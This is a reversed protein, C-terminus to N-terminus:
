HWPQIESTIVLGSDIARHMLISIYSDQLAESLPYFEVGEKIYKYMGVLCEIIANEDDKEKISTYTLTEKLVNNNKNVYALDNNHIEGCCGQLTVHKSLFDSHYQVGSFNYFATKGPFEITLVNRFKEAIRGDTIKGDRSDTETIHFSYGKGFVKFRENTIGLSRKILSAAHYDHVSSISIFQPEGIKDINDKSLLSKYYPYLFYQEAIQVKCGKEQQLTWLSQLDSETLGAPTESLVPIGLDLYEKTVEFISSKNVAVVVFDPKSKLLEDRSTTVNINYESKFIEAKAENRFLMSTLKFKSDMEKVIRIYFKSRWGSGILAFKIKEMFFYNGAEPHEVAVSVAAAEM